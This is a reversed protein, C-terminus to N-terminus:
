RRLVATGEAFQLGGSAKSPVIEIGNATERYVVVRGREAQKLIDRGIRDSKATSALTAPTEDFRPAASGAAAVGAGMLGIVLTARAVLSRDVM